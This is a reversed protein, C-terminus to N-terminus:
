LFMARDSGGTCLITFMIFFTLNGIKMTATGKCTLGAAM